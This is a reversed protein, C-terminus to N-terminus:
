AGKFTLTPMHRSNPKIKANRKVISLPFYLSGRIRVKINIDTKMPEVLMKAAPRSFPSCQSSHIPISNEMQKRIGKGPKTYEISVM